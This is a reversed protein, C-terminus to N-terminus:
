GCSSASRTDKGDFTSASSGPVAAPGKPWWWWASASVRQYAARLEREVEDPSTDLEPIVVVEAGGALGATLALYGCHRGMVEVLFLRDYSSATTKLRDIAELAINLATDVGITVDRAALLGTDDLHHSFAPAQGDAHTHAGRLDTSRM